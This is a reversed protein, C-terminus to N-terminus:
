KKTYTNGPHATVYGSLELMTLATSIDGYDYGPIIIQEAHLPSDVSLLEYIQKELENTIPIIEENQKKGFSDDNHKKPSYDFLREDEIRLDYREKFDTLIDKARTVIKSGERILENTGVSGREGIKGPLAYVARNQKRALDATILSGSKADAEFVITAESLASIIRNRKPFNSPQTKSFPHYETLLLGKRAIERMIDRNEAPYVKDIRTGIVAVTKGGADLAARHSTTDIGAALGSVVIAGNKALDYCFSYTTDHGYRTMNRTGVASICLECDIDYLEGIYYLIPPWDTISKLRAPYVEDGYTLIKVRKATCWNIIDEALKLSKDSLASINKPTAKAKKYEAADAEYIAVIDGNFYESLKRPLTSGPTAALSLWIWYIKNDM